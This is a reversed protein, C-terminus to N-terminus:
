QWRSLAKLSCNVSIYLIPKSHHVVSRKSCICSPRLTPSSNPRSSTPESGRNSPLVAACLLLWLPLIVSPCRHSVEFRQVEKKLTESVEEFNKQGDEVKGEWQSYTHNIHSCTHPMHTCTHVRTPSHTHITNSCTHKHATRYTCTYSVLYELWWDVM